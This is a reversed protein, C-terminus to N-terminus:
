PLSKLCYKQLFLDLDDDNRLGFKKKLRYRIMHVSSLEICFCEAVEAIGIGVAFCVCYKLYSVSLSENCKKRFTEIYSDSLREINRIYENKLSNKLQKNILRKLDEVIVNHTDYDTKKDKNMM